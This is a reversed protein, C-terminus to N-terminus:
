GEDDDADRRGHHKANYLIRRYERDRSRNEENKMRVARLEAGRRNREERYAETGSQGYWPCAVSQPRQGLVERSHLRECCMCWSNLTRVAERPAPSLDDGWWTRSRFCCALVWRPGVHEAAVCLKRGCVVGAIPPAAMKM